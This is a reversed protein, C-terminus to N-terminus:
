YEKIMADMWEKKQIFEEFFTPEKEVLDCMFAMYSSLPKPTKRQTM